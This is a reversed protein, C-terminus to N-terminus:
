HQLGTICFTLNQKPASRRKVKGYVCAQSGFAWLQRCVPGQDREHCQPPRDRIPAGLRRVRRLFVFVVFTMAMFVLALGTLYLAINETGPPLFQPLFALFFLSLKPNLVNILTGRVAIRLHNELAPTEELDRIGNDKWVSWAMYFLYMVGLIKIVQFALASTHFIASLGLIGASAAPIIGLTCGFAACVSARFGHNLGITLTYLVGTGPIVVVILSTLLFEVSM